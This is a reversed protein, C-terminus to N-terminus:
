CSATFLPGALTTNSGTVEHFERKGAEFVFTLLKNRRNFVANM